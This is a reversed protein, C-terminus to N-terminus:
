GVVEGFVDRAEQSDSSVAITHVRDAFRNKLRRIGPSTDLSDRALVQMELDSNRAMADFIMNSVHDDDRNFGYGVTVLTNARDLAHLFRAFRRITEVSAIPKSSTHPMFFPLGGQEPNLQGTLLDFFESHKGHLYVPPTESGRQQLIQQVIETYNMTFVAAGEPIRHYYSDSGPEGDMEQAALNLAFLFHIARRLPATHGNPKNVQYKDTTLDAFVQDFVVTYDLLRVLVADLGENRDAGGISQQIAQTAAEVLAQEPNHRVQLDIQNYVDDPIEVGAQALGRGITEPATNVLQGVAEAGYMAFIVHFVLSRAQGNAPDDNQLIDLFKPAIKVRASGMPLTHDSDTGGLLTM